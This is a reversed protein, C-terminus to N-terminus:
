TGNDLTWECTIEDAVRARKGARETQSSPREHDRVDDPNVLGCATCVLQGVDEVLQLKACGTCRMWRDHSMSACTCM